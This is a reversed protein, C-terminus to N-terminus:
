TFDRFTEVIQNRILQDRADLFQLFNEIQYLSDDRPICHQDCYDDTRTRIWEEFPLEQKRANEEDTLLQLNAVRDSADEYQEAQVQDFGHEKTLHETDLQNQPFIHDV